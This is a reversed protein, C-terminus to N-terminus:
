NAEKVMTYLTNLNLICPNVLIEGAAIIHFVCPDKQRGPTNTAWCMVTGFDLENQPVYTLTSRSLEPQSEYREAAVQLPCDNILLVSTRNSSSM